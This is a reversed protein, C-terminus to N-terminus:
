QFSNSSINKESINFRINCSLRRKQFRLFNNRHSSSNGLFIRLFYDFPVCFKLFYLLWMILNVMGYNTDYIFANMNENLWQAAMSSRYQFVFEQM